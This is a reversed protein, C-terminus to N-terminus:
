GNSTSSSGNGYMSQSAQGLITSSGLTASEQNGAQMLLTKAMGKRKKAANAANATDQSTDPTIPAPSPPPPPPAGGGGGFNLPPKGTYHCGLFAPQTLIFDYHM